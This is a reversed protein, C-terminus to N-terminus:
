PKKGIYIQAIGLSQSRRRCEVFGTRSMIELFRERDPFEVISDPLYDYAKKDKSVLGGVPKMVHNSYFQYAKRVFFNRPTSFELVVIHGGSRLSRMIETLGVELNGFNRVGFAVTVVDLVGSAVDLNEADGQYLAIHDDLGQRRVKEAAIALMNESLDVGMIKAKPIRKAMKIALDGTGTALDLIREPKM